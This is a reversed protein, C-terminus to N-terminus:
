SCHRIARSGEMFRYPGGTLRTHRPRRLATGTCDSFWCTCIQPAQSLSALAPHSYGLMAVGFSASLDLLQRGGEEILRNGSGGILSLPSFRLRAINAIVRADRERLSAANLDRLDEVSNNTLRCIWRWRM